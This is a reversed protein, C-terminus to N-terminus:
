RSYLAIISGLGYCCKGARCDGAITYACVICILGFSMCVHLIELECKCDLASLLQAQALWEEADEGELAQFRQVVSNLKRKDIPLLPLKSAGFTISDESDGLHEPKLGIWELSPASLKNKERIHCFSGWKYIAMIEIGFPDCDAIGLIRFNAQHCLAVFRRTPLDPYGGGTVITVTNQSQEVLKTAILRQFVTAKEIVLVTHQGDPVGDTRPPNRIHINEDGDYVVSPILMGQDPNCNCAIFNCSDTYIRIKGHVLGKSNYTIMLQHQPVNIHSAYYEIINDCQAQSDFLSNLAILFQFNVICV